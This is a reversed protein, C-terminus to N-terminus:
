RLELDDIELRFPGPVMPGSFVVGTLDSGDINSFAAFSYEFEQWEDTTEFTVIAPMQSLRRAFVIIRGPSGDGRARFAIGRAASADVPSMPEAAPFYMAGAWPYPAGARIEGDIRLFHNGAERLVQLEATSTGGMRDDLSEVWGFGFKAALEGTEFDSIIGSPVVPAAVPDPAIAAGVSRGIERGDKWVTVLNRTATIDRIPNGEVLLIDARLGPAIRGRDSLNYTNAPRSTAAVLAEVPDLGAEVLLELEQHLSIGHATGPNPTDSGALIPVGARHLAQVAVKASPYRATGNAFPQQLTRLQDPTLYDALSSDQALDAGSSSGSASAIVTLTPTVFAGSAAVLELFAEDPAEDAFVHVLGDAGAQIAERARELTSVHVVALKDRDHAAQVIAALTAPDFTDWQTGWLGGDEHIIKILDSGEAVRADVFAAAAEASELTPIELGFQTGHGGPTTVLTGASVLSAESLHPGQRQRQRIEAATAQDMFMDIETTVGFRVADSLANGYVHTHSDILGPLLTKGTGDVIEADAPVQVDPGVAEILGHRILVTAGELIEEGDFLRVDRIALVETGDTGVTEPTPMARFFAVLAGVILAVWLLARTTTKM